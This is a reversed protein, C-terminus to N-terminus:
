SGIRFTADERALESTIADVRLQFQSHRLYRDPHTLSRFSTWSADALGPERVFTAAARFAPTGDDQVLDVGDGTDHLYFNGMNVSKFSVGSGGLGPVLQWQSDAFPEFPYPDLRGKLNQHRILRDAYNYSKIRVWSPNAGWRAALGAREAATIPAISGLEANLPQTYSQKSAVDWAGLRGPTRARWVYLENDAPASSDGWLWRATGNNQPVVVPAAIAEGQLLGNADVSAEFRRPEPAASRAEHIKHDRQDQFFLHWSGGDAVVTPDVVGYGPDFFLEPASLTAFDTTWDVYVSERDGHVATYVIGYAKRSADYFAEPAWTHSAMGHVRLRRYSFTRLDPSSWLHIYGNERAPDAADEDAALVVFTGDQLRLVFPDGVQRSGEAPTVVPRNSNLPTWNLGDSSLALHLGHNTGAGSPTRTAYAMVYADLHLVPAAAASRV